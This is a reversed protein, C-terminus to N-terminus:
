HDIWPEGLEAACDLDIDEKPCTSEYSVPTNLNKTVWPHRLLNDVSLRKAPDVQLLNHILDAAQPSLTDPTTYRGLTPFYSSEEFFQDILKM